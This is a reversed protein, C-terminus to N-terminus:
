FHRVHEEKKVSSCCTAPASAGSAATTWNMEARCAAAVTGLHSCYGKAFLCGWETSGAIWVGALRCHGSRARVTARFCCAADSLHSKGARRGHLLGFYLNDVRFVCLTSLRVSSAISVIRISM